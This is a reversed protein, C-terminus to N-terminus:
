KNELFSQLYEGAATGEKAADGGPSEELDLHMYGACVM